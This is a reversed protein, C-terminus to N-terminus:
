RPSEVLNTNVVLVLNKNAIVVLICVGLSLVLLYMSVEPIVATLTMMNMQGKRTDLQLRWCAMGGLAHHPGSHHPGYCRTHNHHEAFSWTQAFETAFDAAERATMPNRLVYKFCDYLLLSMFRFMALRDIIAQRGNAYDQRHSNTAYVRLYLSNYTEGPSSGIDVM